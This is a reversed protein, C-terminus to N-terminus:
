NFCYNIRELLHDEGVILFDIWAWLKAQDKKVATVTSLLGLLMWMM